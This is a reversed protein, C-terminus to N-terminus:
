ELQTTNSSWNANNLISTSSQKRKYFLTEAGSNVNQPVLPQPCARCCFLWYVSRYSVLVLRIQAKESSLNDWEENCCPQISFLYKARKGKQLFGEESMRWSGLFHLLNQQCSEYLASLTLMALPSRRITKRQCSDQIFSTASASPIKITLSSRHQFKRSICFYPM